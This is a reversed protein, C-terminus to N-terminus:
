RTIRFINEGSQFLDLRDRTILELYGPDSRLASLERSKQEKYARIHSEQAKTRVLEAKQRGLERVQPVALAGVAVCAIAVLIVFAVQNVIRIGTTRARLHKGPLRKRHTASPSRRAM